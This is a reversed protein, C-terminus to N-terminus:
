CKQLIAAFKDEHDISFLNCCVNRIQQRDRPLNTVSEIHEISGKESVTIEIVKAKHDKAIENIRKITSPKTCKYPTSGKSTNQHPHQLKHEAGQFGYHIFSYNTIEGNSDACFFTLVM